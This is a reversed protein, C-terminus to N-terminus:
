HRLRHILLTHEQRDKGGPARLAPNRQRNHQGRQRDGQRYRRERFDRQRPDIGEDRDIFGRQSEVVEDGGDNPWNLM